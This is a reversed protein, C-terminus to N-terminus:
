TESSWVISCSASAPDTSAAAPSGLDAYDLEPEAGLKTAAVHCAYSQRALSVFAVHGRITEAVSLYLVALPRGEDLTSENTAM